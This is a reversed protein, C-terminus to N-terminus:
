RLIYGKSAFAARKAIDLFPHARYGRVTEARYFKRGRPRGAANWAHFLESGAGKSAHSLQMSGRYRPVLMYPGKASVTPRTDKMFYWTHKASSGIRSYATLPGTDKARNSYLGGLLRGSRVHGGLIYLYSERKGRRALDNLEDNVEGGPRIFAQVEHEHIDLWAPRPMTTM